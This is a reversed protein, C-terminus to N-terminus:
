PDRRPSDTKPVAPAPTGVHGSREPQYARLLARLREKARSVRSKITGIEVSEIEAIEAHPLEQIEALLFATRQELPLHDLADDLANWLEAQHLGIHPEADGSPAEALDGASTPPPTRRLRSLAENRAITLLWTRFRARRADFTALHRYAALFTEQAIDEADAPSHLLNRVFTFVLGQHREVLQRFAPVNGALVAAVLSADDDM